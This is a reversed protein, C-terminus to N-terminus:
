GGCVWATRSRAGAGVIPVVIWALVARPETHMRGEPSLRASLKCRKRMPHSYQCFDAKSLVWLRGTANMTGRCMRRVHSPDVMQAHMPVVYVMQRAITPLFFMRGWSTRVSSDALDNVVQGTSRRLISAMLARAETGKTEGLTSEQLAGM